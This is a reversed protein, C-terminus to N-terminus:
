QLEIIQNIIDKTANPKALKKLNTKLIKQELVNTILSLFKNKFDVDLENEKIMVAANVKSLAQANKLQHNSTVNPSPILILPKGICSLESISVAGARSIIFDAAAYVNGMENFYPRIVIDATELNKYKNYYLSGCQWIVQFNLSKFWNLKEAILQNIRKSGLSGGLVVLTGKKINLNFYKKSKVSDITSNEISKRIPNGTIVIKEKPFYRELGEYAVAIKEAGISLLKNTIGPYSNQEQILSPINFLNAIFLIPGSAFGGTGIVLNPKYNIIIFLSKIISFFLKAPFLLNKLSFKRQFGDVWLGIIKHGAEPVKTMEIKGIAGVFLIKTDKFRFKIEEAIALAPFLHGGTGGGSIIIKIPKM